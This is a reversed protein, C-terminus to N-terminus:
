FLKTEDEEKLIQNKSTIFEWSQDEAEKCDIVNDSHNANGNSGECDDSIVPSSKGNSSFSEKNGTAHIHSGESCLMQM